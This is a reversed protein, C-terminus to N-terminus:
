EDSNECVCISAAFDHVMGFHHIRPVDGGDYNIMARMLQALKTNM